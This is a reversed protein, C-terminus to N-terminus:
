GVKEGPYVGWVQARLIYGSQGDVSVRCWAAACFLVRAVVGPEVRWLAKAGIDPQATLTRVGRTVYATRDPSLLAKQMWGQTGEPDRVLRWIGWERVIEVPLGQRKYTWTVPYQDGPGSRMNAEGSRLSVFRPVAAGSRGTLDEKEALAPTALLLAILVLRRM